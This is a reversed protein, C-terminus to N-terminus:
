LLATMRATATDAGWRRLWKPGLVIYLGNQLCGERAVEVALGEDVMIRWEYGKNGAFGMMESLLPREGTALERRFELLRDKGVQAHLYVTDLGFALVRKVYNASGTNSPPSGGCAAKESSVAGPPSSESSVLPISELPM